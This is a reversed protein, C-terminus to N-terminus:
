EEKKNDRASYVFDEEIDLDYCKLLARLYCVTDYASYGVSMYVDSNKIQYAYKVKDKQYSFVPTQWGSFPENNKAMEEIITKDMDYLKQVVSKLMAAFSDVNVREGLLEYYNVAKFTAESPDALTYEKYRPDLFKIETEPSIVPFLEIVKDALVDARDMISNYNWEDCNFVDKYLVTIHTNKEKLMKIKNKFPKDGLETNYGTLALNGLTHLWKEHVLEWNEGLMQQWDKSLNKNQPMIHEISLESVDLLEKGQNELAVLLFKCLANKRYLNNGKLAEKFSIDSPMVDRSSLQLMFSVIADYYYKKNEENNFVRGYLTKYFGRLSNSSIECMLRRVSYSLLLQLVKELTKEDIVKEEFDDFVKFLFLFVTTQKLKRLGELYKNAKKGLKPSGSLFVSYQCAYHYIEQLMSENSYHQSVFLEKFEDYAESEKAFGDLKMNLYDLFFNEITRKDLLKETELWYQEYLRDQDIDTMLVYNRIKDALSLPIGTSNIREFIEQANDSNDLQIVAVTLMSLGRYIDSVNIGVEQEKKILECFHVYNRYIECDKDIEDHKDYLLNMLQDNNDKAPKLKVKTTNDLHLQNFQDTNFLASEPIMREAENLAMDALAKILIYITTLRQQGDIIIHNNIGHIPMMPQFVISGCFHLKNNKAAVVIDNFLMDCQEHSWEYNRQYVPIKYQQGNQCLFNNMVSGQFINM